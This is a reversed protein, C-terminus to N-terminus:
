RRDLIEQAVRYYDLAGKSRINYQFVTKGFGPAEALADNIRVPKLFIGEGLEEEVEEIIQRSIEKATGVFTPIIGKISLESNYHKRVQEVVEVIEIMGEMALFHAQMPVYAERAAVLAQVTLLGSTPPTDFCLFDFEGEIDQLVERLRKRAERDSAHTREYAALRRSAPLLTLRPAYTRELANRASIEGRLVATLDAALTGQEVGLSMTSHAQPDTDVLLVRHGMHAFAAAVNVTTTTKGCGGKRNTFVISRKM